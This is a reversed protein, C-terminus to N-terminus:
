IEDKKTLNYHRKCLNDKFLKCGCQDGKKIGTKLVDNCGTFIPNNSMDTIINPGLVINESILIQTKIKKSEKKELIKAQKAEEKALLKSQKAEEKALLKAQKAEEKAKSAIETKYQKVIQKKHTYCYYKDDGYNEGSETGYQYNIKTGSHHCLYFKCNANNHINTESVNEGNPNFNLNPTLFQCPKYNSSIHTPMKYNPDIYNVGEIKPLGLEEYYPLVGKHKIRCYPCRIENKNLRSSSGEMGNFKQKHNKIDLFLPMYNFEHGCVMKFSKDILPLNTILCSKESSENEEEDDLSKYLEDFFNIGGEIKYKSM